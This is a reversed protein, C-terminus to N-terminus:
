GREADSLLREVEKEAELELVLDEVGAVVRELSAEDRLVVTRHLSAIQGLAEAVRADLLDQLDSMSRATDGRDMAIRAHTLYEVRGLDRLLRHLRRLLGNTADRVRQDASPHRLIRDAMSEAVELRADGFVGSSELAREV